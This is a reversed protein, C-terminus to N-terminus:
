DQGGRNLKAFGTFVRKGDRWFEGFELQLPVENGDKHLGPLAISSWDLHRMGTSVYRAIGQEHVHRLYEPMIKTLSGGILEQPKWGLVPFVASNAFLITSGEEITFVVDGLREAALWVEEVDEIVLDKIHYHGLFVGYQIGLAARFRMTEEPCPGVERSFFEFVGFVERLRHASFAMGM